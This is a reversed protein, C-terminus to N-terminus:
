SDRPCQRTFVDHQGRLFAIQVRPSHNAKMKNTNQFRVNWFEKLSVKGSERPPERFPTKFEIFDTDQKRKGRPIRSFSNPCSLFWTWLLPICMLGPSTQPSFSFCSRHWLAKLERPVHRDVLVPKRMVDYIEGWCGYAETRGESSQSDQSVTQSAPCPSPPPSPPHILQSKGRIRRRPEGEDQTVKTQTEERPPVSRTRRLPQPMPHEEWAQALQRAAHPSLRSM